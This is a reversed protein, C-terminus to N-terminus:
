DHRGVGDRKLAYWRGRADTATEIGLASCVADVRDSVDFLYRALQYDDPWADFGHSLAIRKDHEYAGFYSDASM